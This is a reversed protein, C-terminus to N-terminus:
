ENLDFMEKVKRLLCVDEQEDTIIKQRKLFIRKKGSVVYNYDITVDM